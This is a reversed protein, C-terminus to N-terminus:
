VMMYLYIGGSSRRICIYMLISYTLIHSLISVKENDEPNSSHGDGYLQAYAQWVHADSSHRAAVRGLLEKMKPLM